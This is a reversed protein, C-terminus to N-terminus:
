ELEYFKLYGYGLEGVKDPEIVGYGDGRGPQKNDYQFEYAGRYLSLSFDEIRGSYKGLKHALAWNISWLGFIPLLLRVVILLIIISWAWLSIKSKHLFKQVREQATELFLYM